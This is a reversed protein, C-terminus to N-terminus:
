DVQGFLHAFEKVMQRRVFEPLNQVHTNEAPLMPDALARTLEGQPQQLIQGDSTLRTM